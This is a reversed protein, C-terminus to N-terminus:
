SRERHDGFKSDRESLLSSVSQGDRRFRSVNEPRNLTLRRVGAFPADTLLVSM